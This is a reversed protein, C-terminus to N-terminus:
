GLKRKRLKQCLFHISKQYKKERYLQLFHSFAFILLIGLIVVAITWILYQM